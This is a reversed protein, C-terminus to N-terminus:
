DDDRDVVFLLHSRFRTWQVSNINLFSDILEDNKTISANRQTMIKARTKKEQAKQVEM